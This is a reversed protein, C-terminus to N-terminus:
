LRIAGASHQMSKIKDKKVTNYKAEQRGDQREREKFHNGCVLRCQPTEALLIYVKISAPHAWLGGASPCM